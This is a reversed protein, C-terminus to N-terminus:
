KLPKLALAINRKRTVVFPLNLVIYALACLTYTKATFNLTTVAELLVFVDSTAEGTLKTSIEMALLFFTVALYPLLMLLNKASARRINSKNEKIYIRNTAYARTNNMSSIPLYEIAAYRRWGIFALYLAVFFFVVLIIFGHVFSGGVLTGASRITKFLQTADGIFWLYYFGTVYIFIPLIFPLARLLRSIALAFARSFKLKDGHVPYCTKYLTGRTYFRSPLVIIIYLPICSLASLFVRYNEPLPLQVGLFHLWLPSLAIFRLVLGLLTLKIHISVGYPLLKNQKINDM